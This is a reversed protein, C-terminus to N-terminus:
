GNMTRNRNDCQILIPLRIFEVVVMIMTMAVLGMIMM